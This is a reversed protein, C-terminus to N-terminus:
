RQTCNTRVCLFGAFKYRAEYTMFIWSSIVGNKMLQEMIVTIQWNCIVRFKSAVDVHMSITYWHKFQTRSNINAGNLTGNRYLLIIELGFFVLKRITYITQVLISFLHKQYAFHQSVFSLMEKTEHLATVTISVRSKWSHNVIM